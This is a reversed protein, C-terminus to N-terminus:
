GVRKGGRVSFIKGSDDAYDDGDPAPEVKEIGPLGRIWNAADPSIDVLYYDEGLSLVSRIIQCSAWDKPDQAGSAMDIEYLTM